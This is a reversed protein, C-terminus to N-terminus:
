RPVQLLYSLFIAHVLTRKVLLKYLLAKTVYRAYGTMNSHLSYDKWSHITGSYYAILEKAKINRKAFLGFDGRETSDVYVNRKEFPDMRIPDHIRVRTNRQYSFIPADIKAEDVRIEKIGDNCREAIVKSLRGSIMVGDKFTGILATKM